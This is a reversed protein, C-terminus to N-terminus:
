LETTLEDQPRRGLQQFEDEELWITSTRRRPSSSLYTNVHEFTDGFVAANQKPSPESSIADGDLEHLSILSGLLQQTQSSNTNITIVTATSQQSKFTSHQSSVLRPDSEISEPNELFEILNEIQPKYCDLAREAWAYLRPWDSPPDALIEVPRNLLILIKALDRIVFNYATVGPIDGAIHLKRVQRRTDNLMQLFCESSPRLENLQQLFEHQSTSSYREEMLSNCRFRKQMRRRFIAVAIISFLFCLIAGAFVGVAITKLGGSLGVPYCIRGMYDAESSWLELYDSPCSLVCRRSDVLIAVPCKM